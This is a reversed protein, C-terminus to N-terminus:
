YIVDRKRVRERERGADERDREHVKGTKRETCREREYSPEIRRKRRKGDEGEKVM